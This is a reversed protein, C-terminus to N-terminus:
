QLLSRLVGSCVARSHGYFLRPRPFVSLFMQFITLKGHLRTQRYNYEFFNKLNNLVVHGRQSTVMLERDM